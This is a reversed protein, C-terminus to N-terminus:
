EMRISIGLLNPAIYSTSKQRVETQKSWRKKRISETIDKIRDHITDKSLQIHTIKLKADKDCILEAMEIACPTQITEAIIHPKREKVTGLKVRYSTELPPKKQPTFRHNSHAGQKFDHENSTLYLKHTKPM